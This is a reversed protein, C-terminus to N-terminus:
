YRVRLAVSGLERALSMRIEEINGDSNVVIEGPGVSCTQQWRLSSEDLQDTWQSCMTITEGRSWLISRSGTRGSVEIPKTLNFGYIARVTWGDFAIADGDENAFLTYGEMAYPTLVAGVGGVSALWIPAGQEKQGDSPLPILQMAANVQPFTLTCGSLLIAVLAAVAKLPATM